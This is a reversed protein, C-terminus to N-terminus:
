RIGMGKNSKKSSHVKPKTKAAPIMESAYKSVVLMSIELLSFAVSKGQAIESEAGNEGDEQGEHREILELSAKSVKQVISLLTKETETDDKTLLLRYLVVLLEISLTKFPFFLIFLDIHIRIFLSRITGLSIVVNLIPASLLLVRKTPM